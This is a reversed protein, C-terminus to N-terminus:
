CLLLMPMHEVCAHACWSPEFTMHSDQWACAREAVLPRFLHMPLGDCLCCQGSATFLVLLEGCTPQALSARARVLQLYFTEGNYLTSALYRAYTPGKSESWPISMFRVNSGFRAYAPDLCSENQEKDQEVAGVFVREPFHATAFLNSM